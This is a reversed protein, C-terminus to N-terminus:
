VLTRLGTQNLLYSDPGYINALTSADSPTFPLPSRPFYPKDKEEEEKEEEKPEETVAKRKKTITPENGFGVDFDSINPSIIDGSETLQMPGLPTDITGVVRSGTAFALADYLGKAFGIPGPAVLGLGTGAYKEADSTPTFGYGAGRAAMDLGLTTRESPGTIFDKVGGLFKDFMNQEPEEFLTDDDFFEERDEEAKKDQKAQSAKIDSAIGKSFSEVVDQLTGGPGGFRYGSEFSGKLDAAAGPVNELVNALDKESMYNLYPWTWEPWNIRGNEDRELLTVGKLTSRDGGLGEDSYTPGEFGFGIFGEQAGAVGRSPSGLVM